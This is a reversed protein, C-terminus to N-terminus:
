REQRMPLPTRAQRLWGALDTDEDPLLAAQLTARADLMALYPTAPVALRDMLARGQPVCTLRGAGTADALGPECSGASVLTLALTGDRVAPDAALGRLTLSCSSCGPSVFALVTHGSGGDLLQGALDDPVRFGVLEQTTRAGSTGSTRARATQGGELQRTLLSVQRLLGALGLALLAIAVFALVLASATFSM